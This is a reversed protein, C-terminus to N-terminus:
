GFCVEKIHMLTIHLIHAWQGIDKEDNGKVWGLMKKFLDLGDPFGKLKQAFTALGCVNADNRAMLLSLKIEEKKLASMMFEMM